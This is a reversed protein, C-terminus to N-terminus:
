RKIKRLEKQIQRIRKIKKTKENKLRYPIYEIKINAARHKVM